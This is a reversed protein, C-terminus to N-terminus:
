TTAKPVERNLGPPSVSCVQSQHAAPQPLCACAHVNLVSRGLRRRCVDCAAHLIIFLLPEIVIRVFFLCQTGQFRDIREGASIAQLLRIAFHAAAVTAGGLWRDLLSTAVSSFRRAWGGGCLAAHTQSLNKFTYPAAAGHKTELDRTSLCDCSDGQRVQVM